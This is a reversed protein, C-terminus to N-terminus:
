LKFAELQHKATKTQKLLDEVRAILYSSQDAHKINGLQELLKLAAGYQGNLKLENARSLLANLTQDNTGYARALLSYAWPKKSHRLTKRLIQIALEAQNNLILTNAYGYVTPASTADRMYLSHYAILSDDLAGEETLLAAYAYVYLANDPSLRKLIDIQQRAQNFQGLRQYSLALGYHESLREESPETNAVAQEFQKIVRTISPQYLATARAKAHAFDLTANTRTDELSITTRQARDFSDAIRDSSVPHTRLFNPAQNGVLQNQKELQNFFAPMAKPDFGASGLIAMGSADAEAEFARGYALRDAGVAAQTSIVAAAGAQGGILLGGILAATAPLTLQKSREISRAIHRQSHHGIEHAIVAALEAESQVHHILGTNLSIFGGPAAFANITPDILLSLQLAGVPRPSHVALREALKELYELLLRDESFQARKRVSLMIQQGLMKEQQANLVLSASDNLDPLSQAQAPCTTILTLAMSIATLQKFM